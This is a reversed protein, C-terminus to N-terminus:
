CHIYNLPSPLEYLPQKIPFALPTYHYTHSQFSTFGLEKKFQKFLHKCKEIFIIALQSKMFIYNQIHFTFM